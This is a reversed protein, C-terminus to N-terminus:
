SLRYVGNRWGSRNLFHRPSEFLNFTMTSSHAAEKNCLSSANAAGFRSIATIETVCLMFM